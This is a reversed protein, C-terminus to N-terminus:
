GAGSHRSKPLAIHRYKASTSVHPQGKPQRESIRAQVDVEVVGVCGSDLSNERPRHGMQLRARLLYEKAGQGVSSEGCGGLRSRDSVTFVEDDDDSSGHVFVQVRVGSGHHACEFVKSVLEDIPLNQDKPAGYKRADGLHNFPEQVTQSFRDVHREAGFPDGFTSGHLLEECKRLNHRGARNPFKVFVM